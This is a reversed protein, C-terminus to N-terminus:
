FKMLRKSFKKDALQVTVIYVGKPLNSIDYTLSQAGKDFRTPSFSMLERGTIDMVNVTITTRQRTKVHLQFHDSCPNPFINLDFTPKSKPTIATEISDDLAWVENTFSGDSANGGFVIMRSETPIYIANHGIRPPINTTGTTTIETWEQQDLSFMWLDNLAGSFNNHNSGNGGFLMVSGNGTYVLSAFHRAAPKQAPTLDEWVFDDVDLQWIDGLNGTSQGGYILMKRRDGAFCGNFLCRKLPFTTKSEDTWTKTDPNFRWTDDFRGSTTFGAFTVLNNNVPDYVAATGYRKLPAGSVNGDTFLEQWTSDSFNFAWVDNLLSSGKGSWIIMRNGSSDYVANHTYRAEPLENSNPSIEEWLLTTLDLSWIDNVYGNGTEGGFVIMKNEKQLYVVSANARAPINGAVSLQQWSQASASLSIALYFTLIFKIM